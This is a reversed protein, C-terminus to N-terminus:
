RRQGFRMLSKLTFNHNKNQGKNDRYGTAALLPEESYGDELLVEHEIEALIGDGAGAERSESAGVTSTPAESESPLAPLDIADPSAGRQLQSLLAQEYGLCVSEWSYHNKAREIVRTSDHTNAKQMASDLAEAIEEADPRVYEATDALVERAYVTDRAVIPAGCAMAQVLAPNTGGVSHGHFYVGAHQWMAHLRADDSLHGLWRVNEYRHELEAARRDLEGGYGSSGVIVVPYKDGLCDIADFFEGMTNEPVFRAVVLIYNRHKLGQEVPLMRPVDGGYPVFRSSRAYDRKWREAIAQADAILENAFKATLSAGLRFVKKAFRNWKEREWEIGDVNVVVPIGRLRLLPLWFGNAVNMVLAVDPRERMAHLTATLGFSLTSLSTTEVGATTIRRVRGDAAPDEDKTSGPRGYVSVDWGRSVLYPALRRVATEFGGYYSPYGRTGIIAVSRAM